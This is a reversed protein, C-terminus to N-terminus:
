RKKDKQDTYFWVCLLIFVCTEIFGCYADWNM